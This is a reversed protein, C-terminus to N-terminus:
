FHYMRIWAVQARAFDAHTGEPFKNLYRQYADLAKDWAKTQAHCRAIALMADQVKEEMPYNYVFQQYATIARDFDEQKLHYAGVEYLADMAEKSAPYRELLEQYALIGKEPDKLYKTYIVGIRLLADGAMDGMKFSDVVKRYAGIARFLDANVRDRTSGSALVGLTDGGWVDEPVGAGQEAAPYYHRRLPMDAVLRAREQLSRRKLVIRKEDLKGLTRASYEFTHGIWYQADDALRSEPYREVLEAFVGRAAPFNEVQLQAVGATFLADPARVHAPHHEAVRCLEVAAKTHNTMKKYLIVGIQYRAEAVKPNDPNSRIFEEYQEIEELLALRETCLKVHRYKPFKKAYLEHLESAEKWRGLNELCGAAEVYAESTKDGKPFDEMLEDYAGLAEEFLLNDRLLRAVALLADDAEKKTPFLNLFMRYAVIADHHRGARELGCALAFMAPHVFKGRLVEEDAGRAAGIMDFSTELERLRERTKPGFIGDPTLHYRKQFDLVSSYGLRELRRGTDLQRYPLDAPYRAAYAAYAELAAMPAKLNREVIHAVKLLADRGQRTHPFRVAIERYLAAATAYEGTHEMLRAINDLRKLYTPPDGPLLTLYHDKAKMLVPLAEATGALAILKQAEVLHCRGRLDEIRKRDAYAGQDTALEDLVGRATGVLDRVEQADYAVVARGLLAALRVFSAERQLAAGDPELDELAALLQDLTAPDDSAEAAGLLDRLLTRAEEYPPRTALIAAAAEVADPRWERGGRTMVRILEALVQRRVRGATVTALLERLAAIREPATVGDLGVLALRFRAEEKVAADALEDNHLVGHLLRMAEDPRGARHEAEALAIACRAAWATDPYLRAAAEFNAWARARDRESLALAGRLYLIRAKQTDTATRQAAADLLGETGDSVGKEILVDLVDLHSDLDLAQLTLRGVVFRAREHDPNQELIAEWLKLSRELDCQKLYAEALSERAEVSAPAAQVRRELEDVSQAWAVGPGQWCAACMAAAAVIV